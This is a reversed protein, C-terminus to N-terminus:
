QNPAVKALLGLWLLNAKLPYGDVTLPQLGVKYLQEQKSFPAAEILM